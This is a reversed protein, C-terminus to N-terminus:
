PHDGKFSGQVIVAHRSTADGTRVAALWYGLAPVPLSPVVVMVASSEFVPPREPLTPLLFGWQIPFVRNSTDLMSRLRALTTATM